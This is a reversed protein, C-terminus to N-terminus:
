LLFISGLQSIVTPPNLDNCSRRSGCHVWTDFRFLISCRVFQQTAKVQTTTESTKNNNNYSNHSYTQQGGFLDENCNTDLDCTAYQLM